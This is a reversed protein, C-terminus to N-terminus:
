LSSVYDSAIRLCLSVHVATTFFLIYEVLAKPNDESLFLCCEYDHWINEPETQWDLHSTREFSEAVTLKFNVSVRHALQLLKILANLQIALEM